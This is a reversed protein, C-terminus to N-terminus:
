CLKHEKQVKVNWSNGDCLLSIGCGKLLWAQVHLLGAVHADFFVPQSYGMEYQVLIENKNNHIKMNGLSKVVKGIEM